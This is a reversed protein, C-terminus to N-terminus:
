TWLIIDRIYFVDLIDKRNVKYYDNTLRNCLKQPIHFPLRYDSQHNLHFVTKRRQYVVVRFYQYQTRQRSYARKLFLLIIRVGHIFKPPYHKIHIRARKRVAVVHAALKEKVMPCSQPVYYFACVPLSAEVSIYLVARRVIDGAQQASM